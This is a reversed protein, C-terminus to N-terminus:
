SEEPERVWVHEIRYKAGIPVDELTFEREV